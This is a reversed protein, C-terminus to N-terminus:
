SKVCLGVLHLIHVFLNPKTIVKNSYNFHVRSNPFLGRKGNPATGISHNDSREPQPEINTLLQGPHISLVDDRGEVSYPHLVIGRIEGRSSDPM